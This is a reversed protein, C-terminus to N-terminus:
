SGYRFFRREAGCQNLGFFTMNETDKKETTMFDLYDDWPSVVAYECRFERLEALNVLLCHPSPVWCSRANSIRGLRAEDQFILRLPLNNSHKLLRYGGRGPTNKSNRKRPLTAKQISPTPNCKAGVMGLSCGTPQLWHFIAVLSKWWHRM